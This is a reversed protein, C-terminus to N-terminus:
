SKSKDTLVKNFSDDALCVAIVNIDQSSSGSSRNQDSPFIEAKWQEFSKFVKNEKKRKLETM